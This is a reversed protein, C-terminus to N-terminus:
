RLLVTYLLIFVDQTYTKKRKAIPKSPFQLMRFSTLFKEGSAYQLLLAQAFYM